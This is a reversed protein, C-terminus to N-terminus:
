RKLPHKPNRVNLESLMKAVVSSPRGGNNDFSGGVFLIRM